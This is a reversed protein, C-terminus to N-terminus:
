GLALIPGSEKDRGTTQIGALVRPCHPTELNAGALRGMAGRVNKPGPHGTTGLRNCRKRHPGSGLPIFSNVDPMKLNWPTV